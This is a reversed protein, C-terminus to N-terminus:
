IPLLMEFNECLYKKVLSKFMNDFLVNVSKEDTISTEYYILDNELIYTQLDMLKEKSRYRVLDFKNGVLYIDSDTEFNTHTKVSTIKQKAEDLSDDSRLDFVVVFIKTDRYIINTLNNFRFASDPLKFISTQYSINDHNIMQLYYYFGMALLSKKRKADGFRHLNILSDKGSRASGMILIKGIHTYRMIKDSDARWVNEAAM